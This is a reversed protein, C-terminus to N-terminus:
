IIDVLSTKFIQFNASIKSIQLYKPNCIIPYSDYLQIYYPVKFLIVRIPGIGLLKNTINILRSISGHIHKWPYEIKTSPTGILWEIM